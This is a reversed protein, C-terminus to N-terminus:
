RRSVLADRQDQMQEREEQNLNLAALATQETLQAHSQARMAELCDAELQRVVQDQSEKVEQLQSLSVEEREEAAVLKARLSAVVEELKCVGSLCKVADAEREASANRAAHAETRAVADQQRRLHEAHAHKLQLVQADKADIAFRVACTPNNAVVNHQRTRKTMDAGACMRWNALLPPSPLHCFTSPPLCNNTLPPPSRRQHPRMRRPEATATATAARPVGATACACTSSLMSQLRAKAEGEEM